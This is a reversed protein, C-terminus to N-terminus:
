ITAIFTYSVILTSQNPVTITGTTDRCLMYYGTNHGYVGCEEVNVSSGSQNVFSRRLIFRRSGSTSDAHSSLCVGENYCLKGSAVGASIINGLAYSTLTTTSSDNGVVIGDVWSASTSEAHCQTNIPFNATVGSTQKIAQAIQAMNGFLLGTTFAYTLLDHKNEYCRRRRKNPLYLDVGLQVDFHPHTPTVMYIPLILGNPCVINNNPTYLMHEGVNVRSDHGVHIRALDGNNWFYKTDWLLM